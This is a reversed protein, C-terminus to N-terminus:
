RPETAQELRSPSARRRSAIERLAVACVVATVVALVAAVAHLTVDLTGSGGFALPAYVREFAVVLSTALLLRIALLSGHVARVAVVLEVFALLYAIWGSRQPAISWDVGGPVYGELAANGVLVAALVLPLVGVIWTLM